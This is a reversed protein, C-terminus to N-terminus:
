ANKKGEMLYSESLGAERITIVSSVTSVIYPVLMTLMIQFLRAASLQGHLLAAGHNILILITGVILASYSARRVVPKSLGLALCTRM